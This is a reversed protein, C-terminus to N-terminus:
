PSHSIFFAAAKKLIEKENESRKLQKQLERVQSQLQSVDKSLPAEQRRKILWNSITQKPIGLENAAEVPSYNEQEVLKCAAEKFELDYNRRGSEQSGHEAAGEAPMIGVPHAGTM